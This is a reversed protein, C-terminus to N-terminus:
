WGQLLIGTADDAHKFRLHWFDPDDDETNRTLEILAEIGERCVIDFLVRRDDEQSEDMDPPVLGDSGLLIARVGALPLSRVYIYQDMNPDGNVMGEGTGDARNRTTQFMEMIAARIRPDARAERPTIAKEKAIQQVLELVKVDHPRHLNDTLLETTGDECLVAAFSDGVHSIDLRNELFNIKAITATSTPLSNLESYDVSPFDRLKEGFMNNLDRLVMKGDAKEPMQEFMEKLTHSAFRAGSAEGIEPIPKQSSAGDFIAATIGGDHVVVSLADENPKQSDELLKRGADTAASVKCTRGGSNILRGLSVSDDTDTDYDLKDQM